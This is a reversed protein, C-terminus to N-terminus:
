DMSQGGYPLDYENCDWGEIDGSEPLYRIFFFESVITRGFYQYFDILPKNGFTKSIAPDFLRIFPKANKSFFPAPGAETNIHDM